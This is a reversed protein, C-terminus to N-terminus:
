DERDGDRKRGWVEEVSGKGRTEPVMWVTLAGFLVGFGAFLFYVQGKGLRENVLPFFQAVLFTAIWNAGLAWSQAVGVVEPPVLESSLIFPVPGLGVGFSAVFTLVAIASLVPIARMIGFALVLSSTGMGSISLLLCTKRGLSDILPAAAVTVVVNLVGVLVNLIAANAALLDSLLSVGYMVISNIGTLQQATMIMVVALVAPRLHPDLLINFFHIPHPFDSPKTAMPPKTPLSASSSRPHDNPERDQNSLLREEEDDADPADATNWSAIEGEIDADKGRTAQLVRRAQGLEGHEALWRPSEKGGLMLGVGQLAGILGGVGLVVRWLQGKSLFLGLVQTILIGMNIMVQTASGFFGRQAPPAIESIYIPVIVTAAGAGLGAVFRGVAFFALDPTLAELAPGLTAFVSALLMARLRGSHTTIPGGALAGLLGGLTFISTILGFQLPTMPICQPLHPTTTTTTAHPDTPRNAACTIVAQPENLEALHYGFLLPGLTSTLLLYLFTPTWDRFTAANPM